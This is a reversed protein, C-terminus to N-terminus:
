SNNNNIDDDIVNKRILGRKGCGKGGLVEVGGDGRAWQRWRCRLTSYPVFCMNTIKSRCRINYGVYMQKYKKAIQIATFHVASSCINFM